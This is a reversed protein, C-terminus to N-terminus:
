AQWGGARWGLPALGTPQQDLKGAPLSFFSAPLIPTTMQIGMHSSLGRDVFLIGIMSSGLAALAMREGDVDDDSALM